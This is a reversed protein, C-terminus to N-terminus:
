PDVQFSAFFAAVEPAALAEETPAWVSVSFVRTGAAVLVRRQVGPHGGATRTVIELGPLRRPGHEIDKRSVEPAPFFPGPATLTALLERPAVNRVEAPFDTVTAKYRLVRGPTDDSYSATYEPYGGEPGSAETPPGPWTVRFGPGAWGGAAPAGPQSCGAAALGAAVVWLFRARM